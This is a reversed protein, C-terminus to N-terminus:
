DGADTKENPLIILTSEKDEIYSNEGSRQAIQLQEIAITVADFLTFYMEKYDPM